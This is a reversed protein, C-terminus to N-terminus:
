QHPSQRFCKVTVVPVIMCAVLVGSCFQITAIADHCSALTHARHLERFLKADLVPRSPVHQVPDPLVAGAALKLQLIDDLHIFGINASTLLVLVRVLLQVGTPTSDALNGDNACPLAAALRGGLRDLISVAPGGILKCQPCHFRARRDVGVVRANVAGKGELMVGDIVAGVFVYASLDVAVPDFTHPGYELARDRASPVMDRDLVQVTIHMFRCHPEIGAIALDVGDVPHVGQNPRPPLRM